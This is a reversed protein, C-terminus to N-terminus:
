YHAGALRMPHRIMHKVVRTVPVGCLCARALGRLARSRPPYLPAARAAGHAASLSLYLSVSHPASRSLDLSAYSSKETHQRPRGLCRSPLVCVLRLVLLLVLLLLLLLLLLLM